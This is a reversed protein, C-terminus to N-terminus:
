GVNNTVDNDLVFQEPDRAVTWFPYRRIEPPQQLKYKSPLIISYIKSNLIYTISISLMIIINLMIILYDYLVAPNLTDHVCRGWLSRQYAQKVSAQIHRSNSTRWYQRVLLMASVFTEATLEDVCARVDM